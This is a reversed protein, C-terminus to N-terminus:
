SMKRDWKKTLNKRAVLRHSKYSGLFHCYFFYKYNLVFTTGIVLRSLGTSSGEAVLVFCSCNILLVCAGTVFTSYSRIDSEYLILFQISYTTVLSFRM